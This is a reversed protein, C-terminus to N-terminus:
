CFCTGEARLVQLEKLIVSMDCHTADVPPLRHLKVDPNLIQKLMDEVTARSANPGQRRGLRNSLYKDITQRAASVEDKSYFDAVLKVLHDHTMLLSKSQLFCLLENHVAATPAQMDCLVPHTDDSVDM